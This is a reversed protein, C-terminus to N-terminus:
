PFFVQITDMPVMIGSGDRPILRLYKRGNQDVYTSSTPRSRKSPETQNYGLENLANKMARPFEQSEASTFRSPMSEGGTNANNATMAPIGNENLLMGSLFAVCLCLAVSTVPHAFWHKWRGPTAPVPVVSQVVRRTPLIEENVAQAFLQDEMFMCALEKWQSPQQELKELLQQREESKLEGDVCRQMLVEYTM